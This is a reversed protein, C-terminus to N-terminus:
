LMFLFLLSASSVLWTILFPEDLQNIVNVIINDNTVAEIPPGPFQNNILIVQLFRLVLCTKSCQGEFFFLLFQHKTISVFGNTFVLLLGLEM